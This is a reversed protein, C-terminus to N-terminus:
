SRDRVLRLARMFLLGALLLMVPDCIQMLLSAANLRSATTAHAAAVILAGVAAVTIAAALLLSAPLEWRPRDGLLHDIREASAGVVLASDIEGFTLLASALSQADGTASIAAEDAALEAVAAYRGCLRRMVPLFFLADSLVHALFLRLPDRRAAHEAEHAVVARLEPAGLRELAGTSVYVRPRALGACFAQPVPDEVLQVGPPGPLEGALSLRDVFRRSERRIRWGTRVARCIVALSLGDLALVLLLTPHAYLLLWSRCAAILSDASPLSFSTARLAVALAAVATVLGAVAVLSHLRYVWRARSRM